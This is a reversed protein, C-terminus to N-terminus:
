GAEPFSFAFTLGHFSFCDGEFAGATMVQGAPQLTRHARRARPGHKRMAEGAALFRRRGHADRVRERGAAGMRLRLGPDNALQRAYHAFEAGDRYIFGTEGHQVITPLVGVNAALVPIGIAM